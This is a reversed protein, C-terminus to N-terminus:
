NRLYNAYEQLSEKNGEWLDFAILFRLLIQGFSDSSLISRLCDNDLTMADDINESFALNGDWYYQNGESDFVVDIIGRRVLPATHNFVIWGTDLKLLIFM